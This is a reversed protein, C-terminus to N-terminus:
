AKNSPNHKFSSTLCLFMIRPITRENQSRSTYGVEGAHFRAGVTFGVQNDVARLLSRRGWGCDSWYQSLQVVSLVGGVM